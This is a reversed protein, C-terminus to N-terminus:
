QQGDGEFDEFVDKDIMKWKELGAEKGSVALRADRQISVYPKRENPRTARSVM